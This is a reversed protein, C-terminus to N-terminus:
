QNRRMEDENVPVRGEEYVNNKATLNDEMKCGKIIDWL